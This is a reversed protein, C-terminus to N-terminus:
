AGFLRGVGSVITAWSGEPVRVHLGQDTNATPEHNRAVDILAAKLRDDIQPQEASTAIQQKLAANKQKQTELEANATALMTQASTLAAQAARLQEDQPVAGLIQRAIDPAAILRRELEWCRDCRKTHIMPTPQRCLECEVSPLYPTPSFVDDNM